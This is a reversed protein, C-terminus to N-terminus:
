LFPGWFRWFPDWKLDSIGEGRGEGGLVKESSFLIFVERMEQSPLPPSHRSSVQSLPWTLPTPSYRARWPTGPWGLAPGPPPSPLSPPAPSAEVPPPCTPARGPPAPPPPRSEPWSFNSISTLKSLKSEVALSPWEWPFHGTSATLYLDPHREQM